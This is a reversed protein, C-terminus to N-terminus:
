HKGDSEYNDISWEKLNFKLGNPTTKSGGHSSKNSNKKLKYNKFQNIYDESYYYFTLISSSWCNKVFSIKIFAFDYKDSVQIETNTVEVQNSLQTDKYKKMSM